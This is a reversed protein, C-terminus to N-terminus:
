GNKVETIVTGTRDFISTKVVINETANATTGRSYVINFSLNEDIPDVSPVVDKLTLSPLFKTFASNIENKILTSADGVSQFLGSNIATGFELRMLREGLYTMVTLLVRDQWVKKEDQTYAVGGSANFSFPLSIVAQSM